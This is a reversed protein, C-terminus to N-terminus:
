IEEAKPKYSPPIYLNCISFSKRLTVSVAQAQLNTTLKIERQPSNNRIFTSVGGNAKDNTMVAQKHYGTFHKINIPKNPNYFTEQLCLVVPNQEQTLVTIDDYNAQFGRCNWQLINQNAM